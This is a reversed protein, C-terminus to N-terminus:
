RSGDVMSRGARILRLDDAWGDLVDTHGRERALAEVARFLGFPDALIRDPLLADNWDGPLPFTTLEWRLYKNYPRLRGHMAFVTELLWPVSEVVDLYAADTAGDRYSKVAHRALGAAEDPSPTAQRDVLAQIRGDLRDLLVRAGRYGYRMWHVSTDALADLTCVVEDLDANRTRHRYPVDQEDVVVTLDHDSHITALGRAHSGTLVVGLVGPDAEARTLVGDVVDV